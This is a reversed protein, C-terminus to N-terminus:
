LSLMSLSFSCVENFLNHSQTKTLLKILRGQGDKSHVIHIVDRLKFLEAITIQQNYRYLNNFRLIFLKM